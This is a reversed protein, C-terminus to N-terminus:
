YTSMAFSIVFDIGSGAGGGGIGGTMWEVQGNVIKFRKALSFRFPFQPITFRFGGGFSFRMFFTNKGSTSGDDAGFDNFFYWPSEKVGAADFFFDWALIGPAVPFRVEAWNEWLALGKRSYEGTWGRGIFMGDVALKNANEIIPKDYGPQRFIFSLGSHIGFVAKFSWNDSVPINFLTYYWEAKTDARVYHEEEIAFIGYYGIRQIGYYGSSPDYYIDRQDLSLSTWVSTAPTWRNNQSRLVPDFPRYLGPDYDSYVMGIRVGGGLGLNGLGTLWRYGTGIGLSLRWQDYPMLFEDPPIRGADLYEEWSEFGDPWYGDNDNPMIPDRIDMAAYRTIHQVTFDFSGSLPLGFMWRHTYELTAAQTDPSGTLEAGVINGTGMFNRDNWKIMGSVPFADPDSTGSFTLGFQIDTTPQEEVNIIMDMLSDASGQPIDPTVMSFYQLNYLNRLGDTLKAKSFVDGEELPIERLIVEDKTKKNGRVIINEIHARGREIIEIKYSIVGAEVDREPIPDIRNFIYGNEYYLDAVRMLDAQIKRENMIDGVASYVLASLQESSFIKNGEFRVGGFTYLRGEYIRFTITMNNNGKEDKRIERAVDVVEADMYGRDHYYQVLTQRDATLKAEQFAGDSLIGWGKTQLSLQGSLNRDSFASNGEFLFEEITIKEGEKITFTVIMSGNPAATMESRVKIDPYGKELYKNIIALEDVQLKIQTAVDNVKMTVVDLLESPRLGNNGEFDIRSVIPREAVTFRIIVESGLPDARVATPSITEFYELAYLSGLIDWYVQDSFIRGIYPETIGELESAKVNELGEFIIDRIPKGQYWDESQQAFGPFIIATLLICVLGVRM